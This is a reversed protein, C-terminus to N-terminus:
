TFVKLEGNPVPKLLNGNLVKEDSFVHGEEDCFGIPGLRDVMDLLDFKLATAFRM